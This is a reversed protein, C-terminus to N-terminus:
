HTGLDALIEAAHNSDKVTDFAAYGVFKGNMVVMTLEHFSIGAKAWERTLRYGLGAENDGEVRIVVPDHVEHLGISKAARIQEASSLPAVYLIGLGPKDPRRQTFIFNLNAGAEALTALKAAVGGARDEVEGAWVHVRDLRFKM